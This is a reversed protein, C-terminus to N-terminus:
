FSRHIHGTTLEIDVISEKYNAMNEGGGEQESRAGIILLFVAMIVAATKRIRNM